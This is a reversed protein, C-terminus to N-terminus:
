VGFGVGLRAYVSEIMEAQAISWAPSPAPASEGAAARAFSEAQLTYVAMSDALPSRIETTAGGATVEIREPRPFDPIVAEGHAGILRAVVGRTSGGVMTCTLDFEVGSPFAGRVRASGDVADSGDGRTANFFDVLEGTADLSAPEEGTVTRAFSIPYCGLDMVAGGALARSYRVNDTPGDAITIDFHAEVRRLPGLPSGPARALEVARATLPSHLYMFAEVLLRDNEAAVAFLLRAQAGTWCLPKECLVHRGARLLRESWAVHDRNPLTLYVADLDGRTLLDDYTCAQPIAHRDAFERARAPDRSAAAVVECGAAAAIRPAVKSAIRGTGMIAFRLPM